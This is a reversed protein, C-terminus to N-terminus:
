HHLVQLRDVVEAPRILVRLENVIWEDVVGAVGVGEEAPDARILAKEAERIEKITQIILKPAAVAAELHHVGCIRNFCHFFYCLNTLQFELEKLSSKEQSLCASCHIIDEVM